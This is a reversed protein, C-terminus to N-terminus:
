WHTEQNCVSMLRVLQLDVKKCREAEARLFDKRNRAQQSPIAACFKYFNTEQLSNSFLVGLMEATSCYKVSVKGSAARDCM